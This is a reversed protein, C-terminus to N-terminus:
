PRGEKALRALNAKALGERQGETYPHHSPMYRRPKGKIAGYRRDTKTAIPVHEGCGCACPPTAAETGRWVYATM